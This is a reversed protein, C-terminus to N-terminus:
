GNDSCREWVASPSRNLPAVGGDALVDDLGTPKRPSLGAARGAAGYDNEGWCRYAGDSLLACAGQGGVSVAVANEVGTAVPDASDFSDSANDVGLAGAFNSGWCHVGGTLTLGCAVNRGADIAKFPMAMAAVPAPGTTITSRGLQGHDNKGWCYAVHAPDTLACSFGAGATVAVVGTLGPVEMPGHASSVGSGLEGSDHNGWCWVKRDSTVACTHLLGASIGRIAPLGPVRAPQLRGVATTDLGLQGHSNDGWCYVTGDLLLSCTHQRGTTVLAANALGPVVTPAPREETTGDGLEGYRNHGWCAVRGDALVACTHAMDASLDTVAGLSGVIGTPFPRENTDGTGLNGWHNWGFCSVAGNDKTLCTYGDGRALSSALCARQGGDVIPLPGSECAGTASCHEVGNCADGDSCSLTADPAHTVQRTTADCAARTCPNGDDPLPATVCQGNGDCAARSCADSAKCPAGPQANTSCITTPQCLGYTCDGSCCDSATSCEAYEALCQNFPSIRDITLWNWCCSPGFHMSALATQKVWVELYDERRLRVTRCGQEFGLGNSGSLGAERAGNVYLALEFGNTTNSPYSTLSACVSFDGAQRAIFRGNIFGQGNWEDYAAESFPVLRPTDKLADFATINRLSVLGSVKNITMWNWISNSSFGMSGGAQYLRVDLAQAKGLRVTRCGQEVPRGSASGTLAMDRQGGTFLDLEFGSAISPFALSACLSYDGPDGYFYSEEPDFRQADDYIEPEFPVTTFRNVSASFSRIDDLSVLSNVKDITMWNWDPNPHFWMQSTSQEQWVRVDVTDSKRLRVTRCAQEQGASGLSAALANERKDNVFLDIEFQNTAAGAKLAACFNYDGAEAAVFAHTSLNYQHSEDHVITAYPVPTFTYPNVLFSPIDRLSM